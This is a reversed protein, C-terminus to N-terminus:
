RVRFRFTLRRTDGAADRLTLTLTYRGRSLRRKLRLTLTDSASPRSTGRAVTRRGKKLQLRASVLADADELTCRLRTRRGRGTMRCRDVSIDTLTPVTATGGGGGTGGGPTGGGPTGGGPTGGGGGGGGPPAPPVLRNLLASVNLRRGTVTIGNLAAIPDGSALVADRLEAMTATPKLALALGAAGAVQPTAMSTGDLFGFETGDYTTDVCGFKINDLYVGDFVTADSDSIFRFRVFRPSGATLPTSLSFFEGGTDGAWGDAFSWTTGNLSTEIILGDFVFGGQVPETELRLDYSIRCGSGTVPIANATQLSANTSPAYDGAPSDTVSFSGTGSATNTRGWPADAVWNNLNAELNDQFAYSPVTSLINTGPAGMDVSSAGFNSFSARGDSQTTAAICILNPVNINCPVQPVFDNNDGVGDIGGNGAAVVYLTNPHANMADREAPDDAGGGGLSANVIRAGNAGAYNFGDAVSQSTGGGNANLVRVPMISVAWNVGAVGIGNNGVAGITGAVHSGHNNLDRPDNDDDIFDWGRIDDDFGNSDDDDGDGGVEDTNAWINAALDPHDYAVGTDAVAVVINRSGIARDWALTADIDAGPLGSTGPIGKVPQGLNRLGWLQGFAADNPVATARYILNKQAYEVRPNRELERIAADVTQGPEVKLLQQGARYMAEVVTVDAARRMSGRSSASVGSDFQVILEGPVADQSSGQPPGQPTLNQQAGATAPVVAAALLALSLSAFLKMPILRGYDLRAASRLRGFTSRVGPASADALALDRRSRAESVNSEGGPHGATYPSTTANEVPLLRQIALGTRTENVTL